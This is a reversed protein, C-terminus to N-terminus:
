LRTAPPIFVTMLVANALVYSSPPVNVALHSSGVYLPIQALAGDPKYGPAAVVLIINNWNAAFDSTPIARNGLMPDAVYVYEPTAKKLVVFHDYGEVSLLAISPVKVKYLTDLDMRYGIGTMGISEAYHKMDLMSFGRYRVVNYDSVHLMGLITQRETLSTGYADDLLTAMAAAGCSYDTQQRVIGAFRQDRLSVVPVNVLGAGTVFGGIDARAPAGSAAIVAITVAAAILKNFV